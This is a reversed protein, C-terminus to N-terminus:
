FMESDMMKCNCSLCCVRVNDKHHGEENNIRDLSFNSEVDGNFLLIYIKERCISCTFDCKNLLNITEDYNVM